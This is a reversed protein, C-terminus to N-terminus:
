RLKPVAFYKIRITEGRAAIAPGMRGSIDVVVREEVVITDVSATWDTM